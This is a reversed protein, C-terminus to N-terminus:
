IVHRWSKKSVICHIASATVSFMDGIKRYSYQGTKYLERIKRIDQDILKSLHNDAGKCVGQLGNAYSHIVNESQTCWELNSVLNNHKNGDIHNIFPKNEPNPIFAKAVLRHVRSSKGKNNLHLVVRVYRKPEKFASLMKIPRGRHPLRRVNGVNSVEYCGDYGVVVRWIEEESSM